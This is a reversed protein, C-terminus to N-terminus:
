KLLKGPAQQWILILLILVVIDLRAQFLFQLIGENMTLVPIKTLFIAALMIFILPATARKLYLRAAVLAGCVIEAAAVLYLVTHPYPLGLDTFVLKFDQEVLKLAGTSIFVFGVAYCIWKEMPLKKM